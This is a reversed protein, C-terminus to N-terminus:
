GRLMKKVFVWYGGVVVLLVLFIKVSWFNGTVSLDSSVMVVFDSFGGTQGEYMVFSGSKGVLVTSLQQWGSASSSHFLSLNESGMGIEDLWGSEVNFRLRAQGMSVNIDPMCNVRLGFAMQGDKVVPLVSLGGSSLYEVVCQGSYDDFFDIELDDFYGVGSEGAGVKLVGRSGGSIDISYTNGGEVDPQMIFVGEYSAARVTSLDGGVGLILFLILGGVTFRM